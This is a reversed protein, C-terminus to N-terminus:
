HDSRDTFRRRVIVVLLLSVLAAGAAIRPERLARALRASQSRV